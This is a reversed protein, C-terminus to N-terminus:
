MVMSAAAAPSVHMNRTLTRKEASPKKIPYRRSASMPKWMSSVCCDTLSSRLTFSAWEQSSPRVRKRTPIRRLLLTKKQLSQLLSVWKKRDPKRRRSLLSKSLRIRSSWPNLFLLISKTVSHIVQQPTKLALRLRLIVPMFLTLIRATIPTCRFSVALASMTTKPQITYVQVQRFLVPIFASSACSASLRTQPLRLRSLPLLNTMPLTAIRNRAPKRIQVGLLLFMQQRRCILWLRTSFNKFVKTETHLVVPLLFWITPLRPNVSQRYM